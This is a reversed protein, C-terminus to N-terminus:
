LTQADGPNGAPRPGVKVFIGFDDEVRDPRVAEDHQDGVEFVEGVEDLVLLLYGCRDGDATDVDVVDLLEWAQGDEEVAENQEWEEEM